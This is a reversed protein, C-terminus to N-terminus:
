DPDTKHRGKVLAAGNLPDHGKATALMYHRKLRVENGRLMGAVFAWAALIAPNLAKEPYDPPVRKQGKAQLAPLLTRRARRVPEPSGIGKPYSRV